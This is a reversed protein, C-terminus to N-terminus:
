HRSASSIAKRLVETMREEEEEEVGGSGGEDEGREAGGEVLGSDFGGAFKREDQHLRGGLEPSELWCAEVM